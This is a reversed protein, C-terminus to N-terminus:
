NKMDHSRFYELMYRAEDETVNQFTMQTLHQALLDQAIPDKKTMEEPNLIMNMIWEPTRRETVGALAPGVYKEEFKHCASCKSNFVNEGRTVYVEELEDNIDVSKIPGIGKNKMPDTSVSAAEAPKETKAIQENNPAAGNNDGSCSALTVGLSILFLYLLNRMKINTFKMATYKKLEIICFLPPNSTESIILM